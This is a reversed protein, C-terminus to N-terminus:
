SEAAEGFFETRAVRRLLKGVESKPLPRDSFAFRRPKKYSGLADACHRRLEDASADHGPRLRVVASVTEGWQEDPTGVVACEIVSPHAMLANEVEAPYINFGGSIIMDNKRDKLYVYGREDMLAIDGTHYWGGALAEATAGPRNVYERLASPSRVWIEGIEGPECPNGEADFIEVGVWSTAFGCSQLLSREDGVVHDRKPLWVVMSPTETSGYGQTFVPGIRELARELVTESIPAGGYSITKLCSTDTSGLTESEDVLAGIMTPVLMSLSVKDRRLLYLYHDPDWRRMPLHMAGAWSHGAINFASAHSFPLVHAIVDDPGIAAELGHFQVNGNTAALMGTHDTAAGKPLGTTGATYRIQYYDDGRVAVHSERTSAGAVLDEYSGVGPVDSPPRDLSLVRGALPGWTEGMAEFLPQLFQPEAVLATCGADDIFHIHAAASNRVYLPVKVLGALACAFDLEIYEARNDSLVGVKDGKGLGLGDTLGNVLRHVRERLESYSIDRGDETRIATKTTYRRFITRILAAMSPMAPTPMTGGEAGVLRVESAWKTASGPRSYTM